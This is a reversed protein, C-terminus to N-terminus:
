RPTSPSASVQRTPQTTRRRGLSGAPRRAMQPSCRSRFSSYRSPPRAGARRPTPRPERTREGGQLSSSRRDIAPSATPAEAATEPKKPIFRTEPRSAAARPKRVVTTQESPREAEMKAAQQRRKRETERSCRDRSLSTWASLDTSALRVQTTQLGVNAAKLANLRSGAGVLSRAHRSASSATWKLLALSAM